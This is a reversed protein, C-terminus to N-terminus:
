YRVNRKDQMCQAATLVWDSSILVGGCPVITQFQVLWPFQGDDIRKGRLIIDKCEISYLLILLFVICKSM